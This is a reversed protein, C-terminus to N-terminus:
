DGKLFTVFGWHRPLHMDVVWQPTWTWNDERTGPVKRYKGEHVEIQWEVRSFNIRWADGPHPAAGHRHADTSDGAHAPPPRLCSWPIAWEVRWGTDVDSSDNVTGSVGIATRLGDCDWGHDAPGGQRYMRHLYLDFITALVNVELEYYAAGDGDPDIFVEFDHQHFVIEDRKTYEAWLHPEQMEAAIYLADEDWLMKARTLFRPAPKNSGEIDGFPATWEATAWAGEVLEGDISPASETFRCAYRLPPALEKGASEDNFAPGIARPACAAACAVGCASLILAGGSM